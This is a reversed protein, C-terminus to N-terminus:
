MPRLIVLSGSIAHKLERPLPAHLDRRGSVSLSGVSRLDFLDSRRQGPHLAVCCEDLAACEFEATAQSVRAEFAAYDMADGGVRGRQYAEDAMAFLERVKDALGRLHPREEIWSEMMARGGKAPWLVSVFSM